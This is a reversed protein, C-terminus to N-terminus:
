RLRARRRVKRTRRGARAQQGIATSVAGAAGQVAGAAPVPEYQPFQRLQWGLTHSRHLPNGRLTHEWGAHPNQASIAWGFPETGTLEVAGDGDGSLAISGGEDQDLQDQVELWGRIAYGAAEAMSLVVRAQHKENALRALDRLTVRWEPHQHRRWQPLREDRERQCAREDACHPHSDQVEPVREPATAPPPWFRTLGGEPDTRGCWDCYETGPEDSDPEAYADPAFDGPVQSIVRRAARLRSEPFVRVMREITREPYRALQMACWSGFAEAETLHRHV